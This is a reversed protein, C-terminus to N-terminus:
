VQERNKSTKSISSHIRKFDSIRKQVMLVRSLTSTYSQINIYETHLIYSGSRSGNSQALTTLSQAVLIFYLIDGLLLSWPGPSPHNARQFFRSLKALRPHYETGLFTPIFPKIRRKLISMMKSIAECLTGILFCSLPLLYLLSISSIHAKQLVTIYPSHIHIKEVVDHKNQRQSPVFRRTIFDSVAFPEQPKQPNEAEDACVAYIV